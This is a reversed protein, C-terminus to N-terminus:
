LLHTRHYTASVILAAVVMELWALPLAILLINLTALNMNLLGLWLIIFVAIWFYTGAIISNIKNFGFRDLYLWSFFTIALVLITDWIGWLLFVPLNMPAVNEIEVLTSRMMPMVFFLYRFIESINIWLFNIGLAILFPKSKSM